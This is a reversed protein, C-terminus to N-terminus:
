LSLAVYEASGGFLADGGCLFLGVRVRTGGASCRPKLAAASRPTFSVVFLALVILGFAMFPNTVEKLAFLIPVTLM